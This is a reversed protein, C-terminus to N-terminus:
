AATPESAEPHAARARAVAARVDEPSPMPMRPDLSAGFVDEFAQLTSFRPDVITGAAIAQAHGQTKGALRDLERFSVDGYDASCLRSLREAISNSSIMGLVSPAGLASTLM